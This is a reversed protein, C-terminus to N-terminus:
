SNTSFFNTLPDYLNHMFPVLPESTNNCFLLDFNKDNFANILGLGVLQSLM